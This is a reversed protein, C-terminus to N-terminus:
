FPAEDDIPEWPHVSLRRVWAVGGSVKLANDLSEPTKCILPMTKSPEVDRRATVAWEERAPLAEWEAIRQRGERVEAILNQIDHSLLDSLVELDEGTVVLRNVTWGEVSPLKLRELRQEVEDLDVPVVGPAWREDEDPERDDGPEYLDIVHTM